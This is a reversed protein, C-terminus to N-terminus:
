ISIKTLLNSIEAKYISDDKNTRNCRCCNYTALWINRLDERLQGGIKNTVAVFQKMSERAQREASLSDSMMYYFDHANLIAMAKCVLESKM